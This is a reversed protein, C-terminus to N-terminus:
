HGDILETLSGAIEVEAGPHAGDIVTREGLPASLRVTDIVTTATDQCEFDWRTGQPTVVWTLVEVQEATENVEIGDPDGCGPSGAVSRVVLDRDNPMVTVAQVTSQERVDFGVALYYTIFGAVVLLVTGLLWLTMARM